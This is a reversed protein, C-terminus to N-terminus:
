VLNSEIAVEYIVNAHPLELHTHEPVSSARDVFVIVFLHPRGTDKESEVCSDFRM